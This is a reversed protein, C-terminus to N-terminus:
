MQCGVGLLNMSPCNNTTTSPLKFAAQIMVFPGTNAARSVTSQTSGAVTFIADESTEFYQNATEVRATGSRNTSPTGGATGMEFAFLLENATSTIATNSIYQTHSPQVATTAASSSTVDFPSTTDAGSYEHIELVMANALTSSCTVQTSGAHASPVYFINAKSSGSAGNWPIDAGVSSYSNTNNDSISLANGNNADSSCAAILLNGAVPNTGYTCNVSATSSTCSLSQVFAIAAEGSQVLCLVICFVKKM